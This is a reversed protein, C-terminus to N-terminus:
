FQYSATISVNRPEGYVISGDVNTDYTKDFLNNVNGQVAFNKTVQYCYKIHLCTPFRSYGPRTSRYRPPM